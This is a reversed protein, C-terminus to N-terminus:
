SRGAKRRTPAMRTAVLLFYGARAARMASEVDDPSVAGSCSWLGERSGHEMIYRAVCERLARSHDEWAAIDFGAQALQTELEARVIMGAVCCGSLARVRDIAVPQRAYLDSIMLAGGSKLVRACESLVRERDEALSLSCEALVADVSGSQFPLEEARAVVRWAHAAGDGAEDRDVGMTQFGRGCLYRVSHGRGCGLDIITSGAQLHALAIARETLELGGPRFLRDDDSALRGTAYASRKSAPCSLTM